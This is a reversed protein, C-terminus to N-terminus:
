SAHCSAEFLTSFFMSVLLTISTHLRDLIHFSLANQRSFFWLGVETQMEKMINIPIKYGGDEGISHIATSVQSAMDM